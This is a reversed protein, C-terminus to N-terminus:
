RRQRRVTFLWWKVRKGYAESVAEIDLENGRRDRIKWDENINETSDCRAIEFRTTWNGAQTNQIDLSQTYGGRDLRRAYIPIPKAEITNLQGAGDEEQRAPPILLIQEDGEM